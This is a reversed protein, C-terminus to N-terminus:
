RPPPTLRAPRGGTAFAIAPDTAGGVAPQFALTVTGNGSTASAQSLNVTVTGQQASRAQPLAVSLQPAPLSTVRSAAIQICLRIKAFAIKTIPSILLIANM